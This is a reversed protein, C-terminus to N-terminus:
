NKEVRASAIVGFKESPEYRQFAETYYAVVITWVDGEREKVFTKQYYEALKMKIRPFLFFDVPALDLSYRLHQIVQIQRAAM